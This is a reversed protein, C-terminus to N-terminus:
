RTQNSPVWGSNGLSMPLRYSMRTSDAAKFPPRDPCAVSDTLVILKWTFQDQSFYTSESGSKAFNKLM